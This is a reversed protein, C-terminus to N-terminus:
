DQLKKDLIDPYTFNNIKGGILRKRALMLLSLSLLLCLSESLTSAWWIAGGGFLTTLLLLSAIILILGRSLSIMTAFLPFEIATFYGGIVVNYGVLLFSVSFIRFVTVSSAFLPSTIDSIFLGVVQNAFLFCLAVAIVSFVLVSIMSYRFLMRCRDRRQQGHYYSILPQAGQAIGAMSMTIISVMYSIITYSVLSEETLFRLIMQNFFFITIGTSMETIGSSTGNKIERWIVPIDWKFKSFKITGKKGLFHKLYFLIVVVQSIGTAFAAGSVGWKFVLVMFYDLICNLLAGIIVIITAMKPYGDTKILTEFSYSLIFGFALPALTGIYEKVFPLTNETAGLFIALPELFVMVLISLIISLVVLLAINQSFVRNAEKRKGQGLLIAIVTSTGVAFLISISFLGMTFPMSINVATLATESVGRAIFIGDVMTYLAFVWQAAISPLIFKLFDKKLSTGELKM